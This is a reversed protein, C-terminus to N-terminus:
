IKIANVINKFNHFITNENIDLYRLVNRISDKKNFPADTETLLRDIPIKEIIKRGNSSVTMAENISFYYGRDIIKPILSLKGTYWHFIVNKIDYDELLGLLEEEALRSHVSIIKNKGKLTSLLHELCTLQTSKTQIYDKSFDLGIEGVYSTKDVYSDFLSLQDKIQESLQPHFGLSLRIYKYAHVHNIGIGFHKPCNTMGIVINGLKEQNIIYSEPHPMLDYHCHTDIIM